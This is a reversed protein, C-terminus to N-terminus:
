EYEEKKDYWLYPPNLLLDAGNQGGGYLIGKYALIEEALGQLKDHNFPTVIFVLLDEGALEAFYGKEELARSLATADFRTRVVLRTPDANALTAIKAKFAAVSAFVEGYNPVFEGCLLDISALIPYSPSTSHFIKRAQRAKDSYERRVHLLAGGTMVPLTKHLSHIVMDGLLSASLPFQDSFIFHSGHAADVILTAGHKDALDRLSRLDQCIGFYGPSTVVVAYKKGSEMTIESLDKCFVANAGIVKLANTVSVHVDGVVIFDRERAAYIATFVATTAGTTFILTDDAKYLKSLNKECEAIVGKPNLLDDSFSLETIDYDFVNFGSHGPTHFRFKNRSQKLLAAIPTKSM